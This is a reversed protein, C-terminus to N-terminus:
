VYVCPTARARTGNMAPLKRWTTDGIVYYEVTKLQTISSYRRYRADHYETTIEGGMVVIVDGMIVATCNSRKELMSPLRKCELSHINYMLVDNLPDWDSDSNNQGGLIIINDKYAVTAMNYVTYPLTTLTTMENSAIDYREIQNGSFGIVFIENGFCELACKSRDRNRDGYIGDNLKEILVTSKWPRELSTEQVQRGFTIIRNEFLVGNRDGDPLSGPFVNSTFGNESPDLFEIRNSDGGCVMIRKGYLFSFSKSYLSFFLCDEILTWAKTSWNFVELSQDHFILIQGKIVRSGFQITASSFHRLPNQLDKISQDHTKLKKTTEGQTLVLKKLSKTVEDLRSKVENIEKRLTCQHKEYDVYVLEEDCSECTIKRFKCKQTEHSEKDRRNVTEKCGENSCVVPAHGCTQEHLLLEEVQVNEECGRSVHSCRPKKLQAVIGLIIRSPPRLTELTLQEMCLPCTESNGLHKTVCKRCFYHENNQCQVPDHLVELCIKCSFNDMFSSSLDNNNEAM